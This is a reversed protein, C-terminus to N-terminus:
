YAANRRNNEEAFFVRTLKINDFFVWLLCTPNDPHNTEVLIYYFVGKKKAMWEYNYTGEIMVKRFEIDFKSELDHRVSDIESKATKKHTVIDSSPYFTISSIRGDNITFPMLTGDIGGLTTSVLAASDKTHMEGLILGGIEIQAQTIHVPGLILIFAFLLHYLNKLRPHM